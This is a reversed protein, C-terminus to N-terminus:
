GCRLLDFLLLVKEIENLSFYKGRPEKTFHFLDQLPTRPKVVVEGTTPRWHIDADGFVKMRDVSFEPLSSALAKIATYMLKDPHTGYLFDEHRRLLHAVAHAFPPSLRLHDCATLVTQSPRVYLLDPSIHNLLCKEVSNLAAPPVALFAAVDDLGRYIGNELMAVYLAYAYLARMNDGRPLCKWKREWKGHSHERGKAPCPIKRRRSEDDDEGNKKSANWRAAAVKFTRVHKVAADVTPWHDINMTALADAFTSSDVEDAFCKLDDVAGYVAKNRPLEHIVSVFAQELVQGCKRCVVEGTERSLDV